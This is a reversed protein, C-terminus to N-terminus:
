LKITSPKSYPTKQGNHLTATAKYTYSTGEKAFADEVVLSAPLNITKWTIFAESNEARLITIKEVAQADGSIELAIQLKNENLNTTLTVENQSRQKGGKVRLTTPSNTRLGSEDIAVLEYEYYVNEAVATDMYSTSNRGFKQILLSNETESKRRLELSIFDNASPNKWTLHVGEPTSTYNSFVAPGPPITDPRKVQVMDSFDSINDRIDVAAIRYYLAKSLTNLQITDLFVTDRVIGKTNLIGFVGDYRNSFYINYGKLDEEKGLNWKITVKGLSDTRASLGIPKAPPITDNLFGYVHVSTSFNGATDIALIRYYNAGTEQYATTEFSRANRGLEESINQYGIDYKSSSQVLFHSLDGETTQHKWVLTMKQNIQEAKVDTAATPPTKDRAMLLIAESPQSTYGFPDLGKIRYYHPKYNAISDIFVFDDKGLSDKYDFAHLYPSKNLSKFDKGDVSREIWYATYFAEHKAKDWSLIVKKEAEDSKNIIPKLEYEQRPDYEVSGQYISDATFFSLTVMYHEKPNIAPIEYRMGQITAATSDLDAIYLASSFRNTLEDKRQIMSSIDFDESKVSEYPEYLLYGALMRMANEKPGGVLSEIDKKPWVRITDSYSFPGRARYGKDTPWSRWSVISYGDKMQLWLKESRPAWRVLLKNSQPKVIIEIGDKQVQAFSPSDCFMILLAILTYKAM